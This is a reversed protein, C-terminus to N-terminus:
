KKNRSLVCVRNNYNGNDVIRFNIYNNKEDYYFMKNCTSYFKGMNNGFPLM